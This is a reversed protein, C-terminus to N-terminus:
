KSRQDKREQRRRARIQDHQLGKELLYETKDQLANTPCVGVCNGCFVCTTEPMPNEFFTTIKSDHGRGGLGLAYTYQIDDACAQVCRWCLICQSYDRVYFPNDDLVEHQRKKAGPFRELDAKYRQIQNQLGEAQSLDVSANLMELITRRSRVVRESETQVVMDEAVETICSPALRGWGDIEVVCQRCLGEATTADHLCIVPIHIDLSRAAELITTGAPVQCTKGDIVLKIPTKDSM